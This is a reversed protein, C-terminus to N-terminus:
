GSCEFGYRGDELRTRIDADVDRAIELDEEVPGSELSGAGNTLTIIQSGLLEDLARGPEWAPLDTLADNAAAVHQEVETAAADEGSEVGRELARTGQSLEASAACVATRYSEPAPNRGPDDRLYGILVVVGVFLFLALTAGWGCGAYRFVGVGRRKEPEKARESPPRAAYSTV